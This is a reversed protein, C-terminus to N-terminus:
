GRKRPDDHLRGGKNDWHRTKEDIQRLLDKMDEPLSSPYVPALCAFSLACAAERVERLADTRECM